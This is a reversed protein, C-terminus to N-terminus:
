MIKVYFSFLNPFKTELYCLDATCIDYIGATGFNLIPHERKQFIIYKSSLIIVLISLVGMFVGLLEQVLFHDVLIHKFTHM